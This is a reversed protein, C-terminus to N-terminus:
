HSAAHPNEISMVLQMLLQLCPEKNRQFEADLNAIKRDTEGALRAVKGALAEAEPQVSRLKAERVARYEDVERKAESQAQRM